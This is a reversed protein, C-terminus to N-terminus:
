LMSKNIFLSIMKGDEVDEMYENYEDEDIEELQITDCDNAELQEKIEYYNKLEYLKVETLDDDSKVLITNGWEDPVDGVEPSYTSYYMLKVLYYKM